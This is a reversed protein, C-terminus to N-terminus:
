TFNIKLIQFGIIGGRGHNQHYFSLGNLFISAPNTTTHGRGSCLFGSDLVPFELNQIKCWFALEDPRELHHHTMSFYCPLVCSITEIRDSLKKAMKEFPSIIHAVFEITDYDIHNLSSFEKYEIAVAM